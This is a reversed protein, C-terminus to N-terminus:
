NGANADVYELNNLRVIVKADSGLENDPRVVMRVITFDETGDGSASVTSLNAEVLSRGTAATGTTPTAMDCVNGIMTATLATGTTQIEYLQDPHTLVGIYRLTSATRYTPDTAVNPFVAVCVGVLNDGSATATTATPVGDADASGALKIPAGLYTITNDTAPVCFVEMAGNWSGGTGLRVPVLGIANDTNAM